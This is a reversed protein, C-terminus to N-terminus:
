YDRSVEIQDSVSKSFARQSLCKKKAAAQRIPEEQMSSYLEYLVETFNKKPSVLKPPLYHVSIKNRELVFELHGQEGPLGLTKRSLHKTRLEDVILRVAKPYRHLCENILLFHDEIKLQGILIQDDEPLAMHQMTLGGQAPRHGLVLDDLVNM